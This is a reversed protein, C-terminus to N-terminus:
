NSTGEGNTAQETNGHTLSRSLEEKRNTYNWPAKTDLQIV